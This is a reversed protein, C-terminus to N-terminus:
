LSITKATLIFGDRDAVSSQDVTGHIPCHKINVVRKKYDQNDLNVWYDDDKKYFKVVENNISLEIDNFQGLVSQDSAQQMSKQHHSNNWNQWQSQHCSQCNEGSPHHKSVNMSVPQLAYVQNNSLKLLLFAFAFLLFFTILILAINEKILKM